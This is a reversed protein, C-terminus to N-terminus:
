LYRTKYFFYFFITLCLGPTNALAITQRIKWLFKKFSCSFCFAHPLIQLSLGEIKMVTQAPWILFLLNSINWIDYCFLKLFNFSQKVKVTRIKLTTRRATKDILRRYVKLISLKELNVSCIKTLSPIYWRKFLGKM